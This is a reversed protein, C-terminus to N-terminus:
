APCRPHLVSPLNSPLLERPKPRSTSLANFASSCVRNTVRRGIVQSVTMRAATTNRQARCTQPRVVPSRAKTIKAKSGFRIAWLCSLVVSTPTVANPNMPVYRSERQRRFAVGAVNTPAPSARPAVIALDRVVSPSRVIQLCIGVPQIRHFTPSRGIFFPVGCVTDEDGLDDPLPMSCLLCCASAKAASWGQIASTRTTSLMAPVWSPGVGTIWSIRPRFTPQCRPM